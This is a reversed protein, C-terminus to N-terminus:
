LRPELATSMAIIHPIIISKCAMCDNYQTTTTLEVCVNVPMFTHLIHILVSFMYMIFLSYMFLDYTINMFILIFYRLIAISLNWGCDNYTVLCIPTTCNVRFKQQGILCIEINFTSHKVNIWYFQKDLHVSQINAAGCVCLSLLM